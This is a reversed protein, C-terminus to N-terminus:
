LSRGGDCVGDQFHDHALHTGPLRLQLYREDDARRDACM